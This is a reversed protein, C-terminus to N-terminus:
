AHTQHVADRHRWVRVCACSIGVRFLRWLGKLHHGTTSRVDREDWRDVRRGDMLAEKTHTHTHTHKLLKSRKAQARTDKKKKKRKKMDTGTGTGAGTTTTTRMGARNGSVITASSSSGGAGAPGHHQKHQHFNNITEALCAVVDQILIIKRMACPIENLHRLLSIPQKPEVRLEVRVGVEAMSVDSLQKLRTHIQQNEMPYQRLHNSFLTDCLPKYELFVSLYAVVLETKTTKDLPRRLQNCQKTFVHLMASEIRVAAEELTIPVGRRQATQLTQYFDEVHKALKDVASSGLLIHILSNHQGLTRRTPALDRISDLIHTGESEKKLRYLPKNVHIIQLTQFDDSYYDESYMVRIQTKIPFGMGTSLSKRDASMLVEWGNGTKCIKQKTKSERTAMRLIHACAFLTTKYNYERRLARLSSACPVVVVYEPANWASQFMCCCWVVCRVCCLMACVRCLVACLVACLVVRCLLVYCFVCLSIMCVDAVCVCCVGCFVCVCRM